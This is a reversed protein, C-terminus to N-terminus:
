FIDRVGGSKGHSDRRWRAERFGGTGPIVPFSLPNAMIAHEM